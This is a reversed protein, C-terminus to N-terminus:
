TNRCWSVELTRDPWGRGQDELGRLALNLINGLLILESSIM